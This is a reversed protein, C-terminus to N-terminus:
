LRAIMQQPTEDTTKTADFAKYGLSASSKISPAEPSSTTAIAAGSPAGVKVAPAGGTQLNYNQKLTNVGLPTSTSKM